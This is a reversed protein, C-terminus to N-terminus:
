SQHLTLHEAVRDLLRGAQSAPLNDNLHVRFVRENGWGGGKWEDISHVVIGLFTKRRMLEAILEQTSLLELESPEVSLEL